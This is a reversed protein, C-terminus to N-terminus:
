CVDVEYLCWLGSPFFLCSLFLFGETQSVTVMTQPALQSNALQGDPGAKRPIPLVIMGKHTNVRAPIDALEIPLLDVPILRTYTGDGRDYCYSMAKNMDGEAIVLGSNPYM